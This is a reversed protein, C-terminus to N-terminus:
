KMPGYSELIKKLENADILRKAIIETSMGVLPKRFLAYRMM